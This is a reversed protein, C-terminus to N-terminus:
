TTTERARFGSTRRATREKDRQLMRRKFSPVEGADEPPRVSRNAREAVVLAAARRRVRGQRRPHALRGSATRIMTPEEADPTRVLVPRPDHGRRLEPQTGHGQQRI